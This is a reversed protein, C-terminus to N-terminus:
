PKHLEFLSDGLLGSFAELKTIGKKLQEGALLFDDVGDSDYDGINAILQASTELSYLERSHELDTVQYRSPLARKLAFLNRYHRKNSKLHTLAQKSEKLLNFLLPSTKDLHGRDSLPLSVKRLKGNEISTLSLFTKAAGIKKPAYSIVLSCRQARLLIDPCNNRVLKFPSNVKKVSLKSIDSKTNNSITFTRELSDGLLRRKFNFHESNDEFTLPLFAVGTGTIARSGIQGGVLGDNYIIQITDNDVQVANPDYTVQVTCVNVGPAITGGCSGGTFAYIVGDLGGNVVSTANLDGSNSVNFSLVTSSAGGVSNNGFNNTTVDTVALLAPSQATATLARGAVQGGAIGNNYTLQVTDNEAGSTNATYTVAITCINTGPVITATCNGTTGPFAGGEFKYIVGDLGAGAVTTANVDGSNSVNFTLTAPTYRVIITCATSGNITTTCTGGGPFAGTAYTFPAALTTEAVSAANAQGSNTVNFTFDTTTGIVRNGWNNSTVATVALSAATIGTGQIPRTATQGAVVGNHYTLPITDASLVAATPTFTVRITCTGVLIPDGCTGSTGPYAGGLFTFPAGLATVALTNTSVDGSNTVTFTQTTAVTLVHSTYDFTGAGSIALNAPNRGLGTLAQTNSEANIGNNYNLTVTDTLTVNTLPVFQTAITCTEAPVLDGDCDGSTGPYGGGGEYRYNTGTTLPGTIGTMTTSGVNQVTFTRVTNLGILTSGHDNTTTATISLNPVVTASILIARSTFEFGNFFNMTVAEAHGGVTLPNFNVVITCSGTEEKVTCTGGTGPYAGGKFTFDGSISATIQTAPQGGKFTLPITQETTTAENIHVTTGFSTTGAPFPISAPPTVIPTDLFEVESNSVCSATLLIFLLYISFDKLNM